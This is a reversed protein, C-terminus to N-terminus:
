KKLFTVKVTDYWTNLEIEKKLKYFYPNIYVNATWRRSKPISRNKVLTVHIINYIATNHISRLRAYIRVRTPVRSTHPLVFEFYGHTKHTSYRRSIEKNMLTFSSAARHANIRQFRRVVLAWWASSHTKLARTCQFTKRPFCFSLNICRTFVLLSNSRPSTCKGFISPMSPQHCTIVM